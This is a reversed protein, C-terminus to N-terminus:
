NIAGSNIATNEATRSVFWYPWAEVAHRWRAPIADRTLGAAIIGGVIAYNTDRDGGASVTTWLAKEYDGLHRAACWLCFPVTDSASIRTGNGLILAAERGSVQPGLKQAQEIGNRVEGHPVFPLVSEFLDDFAAALGSNSLFTAKNQAAAVAVAIAGAIGEEHAHTVEASLRAQAAAKAPDDYFYAGLPAIRMAAGNGFSGKGDFLWKSAVRWDIGMRFNELLGHIAPGYGRWNEYHQAFSQALVDQEIEGHRALNDVVSLAMQTDDTYTWPLPKANAEILRRTTEIDGFFREGFADGITLGLLSDLAFQLRLRATM